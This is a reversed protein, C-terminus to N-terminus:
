PTAAGASFHDQVLFALVIGSSGGAGDGKGLALQFHAGVTPAGGLDAHDTQYDVFQVSGAVLHAFNWHGESPSLVAFICGKGGMSTMYSICEQMTQKKDKVSPDGYKFVRCLGLAQRATNMVGAVQMVNTSEINAAGSISNPPAGKWGTGSFTQSHQFHPDAANAGALEYHLPVTLPVM